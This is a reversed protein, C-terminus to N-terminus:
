LDEFASYTRNLMKCLVRVCAKGVTIALSCFVIQPRDKVSALEIRALDVVDNLSCQSASDPVHRGDYPEVPVQRGSTDKSRPAIAREPFL